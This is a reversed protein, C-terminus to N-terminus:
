QQNNRCEMHRYSSLSAWQLLVEHFVTNVGSPQRDKMLVRVRGEGELCDHVYFTQITSASAM